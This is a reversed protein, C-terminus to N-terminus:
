LNEARALRVPVQLLYVGVLYSIFYGSGGLVRHHDPHSGYWRSGTSVAKIALFIPLLHWDHCGSLRAMRRRLPAPARPRRSIVQVPARPLAGHIRGAQAPLPAMRAPQNVGDARGFGQPHPLEPLSWECWAPPAGSVTHSSSHPPSLLPHPTACSM